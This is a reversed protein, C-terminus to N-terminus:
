EKKLVKYDYIMMLKVMQKDTLRKYIVFQKQISEVFNIEWDTLGSELELLGDIMGNVQKSADSGIGGSNAPPWQLTM